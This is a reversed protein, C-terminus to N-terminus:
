RYKWQSRWKHRGNLWVEDLWFYHSKFGIGDQSSQRVARHLLRQNAKWIFDVSTNKNLFRTRTHIVASCCNCKMLNRCCLPFFYSTLLPRKSDHSYIIHLAIIAWKLTWSIKTRARNKMWEKWQMIRDCVSLKLSCVVNVFMDIVLCLMADSM